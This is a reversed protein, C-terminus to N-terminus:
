LRPRNSYVKCLANEYVLSGDALDSASYTVVPMELGRSRWYKKKGFGVPSNMLDKTIYKTIYSSARDRSRIKTATSFGYKWGPVNFISSGTRDKHGSDVMEGMYGMSVGHFHIEGTKHREPIFIYGFTGFRRRHADLFNNLRKFCLADDDRHDAFTITWFFDFANSLVLDKITTRVQYLRAM